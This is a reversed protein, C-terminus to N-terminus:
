RTIEECETWNKECIEAFIEHGVEHKCIEVARNFEMGTIDISIMDNTRNRTWLGDWIKVPKYYIYEFSMGLIGGLIIGLIFINIIEMKKNM